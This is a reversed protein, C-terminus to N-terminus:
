RLLILKQATSYGSTQFRCLYVGSPFDTADWVAEHKGPQQLENVLSAVERGLLDFVKLTVFAAYPNQFVITTSPNFPNPYNRSMQFTSPVERGEAVSSPPPTWVFVGGAWTGAYLRNLSDIGLSNIPNNSSLGSRISVWSQGGDTSRYVNNSRVIDYSANAAYAIGNNGIALSSLFQDTLTQTWLDGNNSSRYVGFLILVSLLDDTRPFVSLAPVLPVGTAPLGNGVMTWAPSGDTRRFIGGVTTGAFLDGNSNITLSSIDLDGLGNSFSSWSSGYNTSSFVGNNTGIYLSGTAKNIAIDTVSALNPLGANKREWEEGNNTSRFMTSTGAFIDGAGIIALSFVPPDDMGNNQRQWSQGSDTSRFIGGPFTGVFMDGQANTLFADVRFGDLETNEETWQDGNNTSRFVGDGVAGVFVDNNANISLCHIGFDVHLGENVEVWSNGNDTSRFVTGTEQFGTGAFLVDNTNITLATINRNAIANNLLQWTSGNNTSRYIGKISSIPSGGSAFFTGQSNKVFDTFIGSSVDTALWITGNNTSRYIGGEIPGAFLLGNGFSKLSWAFASNQPISINTWRNGDDTSRYIPGALSAAFLVDNEDISMVQMIGASLLATPTWSEGGDTSSYVGDFNGVFIRGTSNVVVALATAAELGDNKEGWTTGNDTSKYVGTFTCALIDGTPTFELANVDGGYLNTKQWGQQLIADGTHSKQVMANGHEFKGVYLKHFPEAIVSGGQFDVIRSGLNSQSGAVTPLIEFFLAFLLGRNM